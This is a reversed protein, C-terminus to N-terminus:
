GVAVVVPDADVAFRALPLTSLWAAVAGAVDGDAGKLEHGGGDIWVHTVAGPIAACRAELEHPSGFPDHTGSVFLCPM